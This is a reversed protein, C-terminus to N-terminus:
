RSPSVSPLQSERRSPGHGASATDPTTTPRSEDEARATPLYGDAQGTFLEFYRGQTRMLEEHTGGEVISGGVLVCIQDADRVASLRHSVLVTAKGASAAQIARHIRLESAPDLGASPEDLLLLAKDLRSFARALAVRQWQGGSLYTAKGSTDDPLFARSLMTDLGGPLKDLFEDATSRRAALELWPEDDARELNGIAVNERATLDYTMFDQFVAGIQNRLHDVPLNRIDKGQFWISGQEPEYFRCILKVITSKGAGNHGVLALSSGAGIRFSVGRVAWDTAGQYRFWVDRFELISDEAPALPELESPESELQPARLTLYAAFLLASQRIQGVHGVLGTTASQLGLIGALVLSVAGISIIKAAALHVGWLLALSAGLGAVGLLMIQRTLVSRQLCRQKAQVSDLQGMMKATLFAASGYLRTEKAAQVDTLLSSFFLSRRLQPTTDALLDAQRHGDILASVLMPLVSVAVLVTLGMSVHILLWILSIVTIGSQLVVLLGIFIHPPATQSAQQALRLQDQFAPSEFPAIGDIRSVEEYLRTTVCRHVRRQLESQLYTQAMPVLQSAIACIGIVVAAVYCRRSQGGHALANILGQLAAASVPALAGALVAFGALQLCAGRAAQWSAAVAALATGAEARVEGASTM